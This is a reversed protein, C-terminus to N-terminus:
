LTEKNGLFNNTLYQNHRIVCGKSEANRRGIVKFLSREENVEILMEYNRERDVVTTKMM